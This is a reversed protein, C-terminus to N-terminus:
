MELGGGHMCLVPDCFTGSDMMPFDFSGLTKLNLRHGTFYKECAFAQDSVRTNAQQHFSAKFRHGSLGSCLVPPQQGFVSILGPIKGHVPAAM